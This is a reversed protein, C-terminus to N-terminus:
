AVPDSFHEVLPFVRQLKVKMFSNNLRTMGTVEFQETQLGGFDVRIKKDTNMAKQYQSYQAPNVTLEIENM